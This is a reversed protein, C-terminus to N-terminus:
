FRTVRRPRKPKTRQGAWAALSAAEVPTSDIADTSGFGWSGDRGIPRKPAKASADLASQGDSALHTVSGSALGDLLGSAAAAVDAARPTVAFGRPVGARQLAAVLVPAHSGGDIAACTASKSRQALWEALWAVGQGMNEVRVLEVHRDGDAQTACAALAVHSGDMAFKVGYSVSGGQPSTEVGSREWLERPIVSEVRDGHPLWYGLREVAFGERTMREMENRLAREGMRYGLMPNVEYALEMLDDSETPLRDIGWEMWWLDRSTGDHAADHDRQFVTGPTVADPPTGIEVIQPDTGTASASPLISNQQGDTLYQAEDIVIVSYSDGRASGNTRTQFEICSGNSFYIGERGPQRYVHDLLGSFSPYREPSTFVATLWRFFKTVTDGRHASYLVDVGVIAAMWVAYLRAAYSKGNQRPRVIGITTAAFSGDGRRALMADLEHRQAPILALGADAFYREADGGATTAFACPVEFTPEQRGRRM